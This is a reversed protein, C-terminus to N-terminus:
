FADTISALVGSWSIFQITGRMGFCDSFFRPILTISVSYLNASAGAMGIAALRVKQDSVHNLPVVKVQKHPMRSPLLKFLEGALKEDDPLKLSVRVRGQNREERLIRHVRIRSIGLKNAVDAQTQYEASLHYLTLVAAVLSRDNPAGPQKKPM